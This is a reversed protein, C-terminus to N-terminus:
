IQGTFTVPFDLNELDRQNYEVVMTGSIYKIQGIIQRTTLTTLSKTDTTMSTKTDLVADPLPTKTDGFPFLFVPSPSPGLMTCTVNVIYHDGQKSILTQSGKTKILRHGIYPVYSTPKEKYESIITNFSDITGPDITNHGSKAMLEGLLNRFIDMSATLPSVGAASDPARAQCLFIQSDQKIEKEHAIKGSEDVRLLMTPTKKAPIKNGVLCGKTPLRFSGLTAAGIQDSGSM